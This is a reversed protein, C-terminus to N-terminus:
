GVQQLLRMVQARQWAVMERRTASRDGREAAGSGHQLARESDGNRRGCHRPHASSALRAAFCATAARNAGSGLFADDLSGGLARM